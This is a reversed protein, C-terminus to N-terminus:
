FFYFGGPINGAKFDDVLQDRKFRYITGRQVFDLADGVYIEGTYPDFGMSYANSWIKSIYPQLPLPVTTTAAMQYVGDNLYYLTDKTANMQLQSRYGGGMSFLWEKKVEFQAADVCHLAASIGLTADGASLLWLREKSDIVLSNTGYGVSVSDQLQNTECDIMYLQDTNMTSVFLKNNVIALQETWAPVAIFHVKEHTLLDVVHVGNAYLDSIYGINNDNVVMYRPSTLNTVRATEELTKADVAVVANSNNLVLYLTNDTKTISQLVDGLVSNNAQQFANLVVSKSDKDYVSISANGFMFNGENAVIVRNTQAELDVPKVAEPRDSRCQTFAIVSFVAVFLKIKNSM